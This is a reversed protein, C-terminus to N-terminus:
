IFLLLYNLHKQDQHGYSFIFKAHVCTSNVVDKNTSKIEEKKFLLHFFPPFLLLHLSVFDYCLSITKWRKNLKTQNRQFRKASTLEVPM